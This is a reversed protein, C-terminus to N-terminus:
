LRLGTTGTWSSGRGGVGAAFQGIHLQSLYAVATGAEQPQLRGGSGGSPRLAAEGDHRCRSDLTRAVAASHLLRATGAALMARSGGRDQEPGSSGRGRQGGQGDRATTSQGSRLAAAYRRHGALVSLM